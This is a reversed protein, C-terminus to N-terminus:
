NFLKAYKSCQNFLDVFSNVSYQIPKSYSGGMFIVLPIKMENAFDLVIKNRKM